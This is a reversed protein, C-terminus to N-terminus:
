KCNDQAWRKIERAKPTIHKAWAEKSFGVLDNCYSENPLIDQDPFHEAFFSECRKFKGLAEVNNGDYFQCYCTNFKWSWLRRVETKFQPTCSASFILFTILTIKKMVQM